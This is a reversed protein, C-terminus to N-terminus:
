KESVCTLMTLNSFSSCLAEGLRELPSSCRVARAKRFYQYRNTVGFIDFLSVFIIHYNYLHNFIQLVTRRVGSFSLLILDLGGILVKRYSDSGIEM